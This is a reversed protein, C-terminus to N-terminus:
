VNTTRRLSRGHDAAASGSSSTRGYFTAAGFAFATQMLVGLAVMVLSRQDADPIAFLPAFAAGLNRTAMGLSIVSKQRRPLGFSLLYPAVTAITFFIFQAGIAQSGALGVFQKGYIAACLALMLLTDVGTIKKVLPELSSALSGWGRQIMVGVAFPLLLFLVLPRAITFASATLGKVLLPVAFPMYAVTVVSALLMFAATYGLDGKAREVMPPLFPACPTLGLLILGIAYPREMPIIMAIGYALAPVLVFGWLLSLLVFRFNRLDQIAERLELKLGMDLLNGAMFIVLSITLASQLADAM